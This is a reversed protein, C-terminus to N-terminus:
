CEKGVGGEEWSRATCADCGNSALGVEVEAVEASTLGSIWQGLDAGARRHPSESNRIRAYAAKTIARPDQSFAHPWSGTRM